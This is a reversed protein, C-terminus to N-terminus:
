QHPLNGEKIGTCGLIGNAKKAILACQQSISLNNEVLDRLDKEASSNEQWDAGQRYQQM